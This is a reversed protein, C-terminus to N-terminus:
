FIILLFENLSDQVFIVQLQSKIELFGLTSGSGNNSLDSDFLCNYEVFKIHNRKEVMFQGIRNVIKVVYSLNSLNFLVACINARYESDVTGNFVLIGKFNALGSRGVVRGYYGKLIELCLDTKKLQRGHLVIIKREAASM